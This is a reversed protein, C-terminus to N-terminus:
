EQTVNVFLSGMKKEAGFHLVKQTFADLFMILYVWKDKQAWAYTMDM